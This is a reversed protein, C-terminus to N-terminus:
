RVEVSPEGCLFESLGETRRLFVEVHDGGPEPFVTKPDVHDIGAAHHDIEGAGCALHALSEPGLDMVKLYITHLVDGIHAVRLNRGGQRRCHRADDGQMVEQGARHVLQM